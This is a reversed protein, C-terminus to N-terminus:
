CLHCYNYRRKNTPRSHLYPLPNPGLVSGQPVGAKIKRLNTIEGKVKVKFFRESLYSKLVKYYKPPLNNKIKYLLGPHWVKHFAQTIDLYAASFYKKKELAKRITNAVRHIQETTSHQQRFGFQHDPLIKKEKQVPHLRKLLGKEFVKSM